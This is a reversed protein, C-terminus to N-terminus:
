SRYLVRRECRKASRGDMRPLLIDLVVLDPSEAVALELGTPGDSATSVTYGVSKLTREVPGVILPDDEIILIHAVALGRL